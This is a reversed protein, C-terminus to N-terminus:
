MLNKAGSTESSSACACASVASEDDTFMSASCASSTESSSITSFRGSETKIASFAEVKPTKAGADTPEFSIILM